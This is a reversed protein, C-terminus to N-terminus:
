GERYGLEAILGRMYQFSKVTDPMPDNEHNEQELDVTYPYKMEALARFIERTPVIGDGM